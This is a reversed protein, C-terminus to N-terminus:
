ARPLPTQSQSPARLTRLQMRMTQQHKRRIPLLSPLAQLRLVRNATWQAQDATSQNTEIQEEEAVEIAFEDPSFTIRTAELQGSANGKGEASISLGPVRATIDMDIHRLFLVSHKSRLIKTDEGIM